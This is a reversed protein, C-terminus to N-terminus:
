RAATSLNAAAPAKSTSSAGLVPDRHRSAVQLHVGLLYNIGSQRIVSAAAAMVACMTLFATDGPDAVLKLEMEDLPDKGYGLGLAYLMAQRRRWHPQADVRRRLIEPYRIM